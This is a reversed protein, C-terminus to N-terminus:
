MITGVMKSPLRLLSRDNCAEPLRLQIKGTVVAVNPLLELISSRQDAARDRIQCVLNDFYRELLPITKTGTWIRDPQMTLDDGKLSIMDGGTWEITHYVISQNDSKTENFPFLTINVQRYGGDGCQLCEDLEQQEGLLGWPKPFGQLQLYGQFWSPNIDPLCIVVTGEVLPTSGDDNTKDSSSTDESLKQKRTPSMRNCSPDDCFEDVAVEGSSEFTSARRKRQIKTWGMPLAAPDAKM